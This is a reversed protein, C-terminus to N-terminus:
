SIKITEKFVCRAKYNKFKEENHYHGFFWKKYKTISYVHNLFESTSNRKYEL